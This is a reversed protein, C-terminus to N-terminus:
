VNVHELGDAAFAAYLLSWGISEFYTVLDDASPMETRAALESWTPADDWAVPRRKPPLRENYVHRMLRMFARASLIPMRGRMRRVLRWDSLADYAAFLHNHSVGPLRRVYDNGCAACFAVFSWVDLTDPGIVRQLREIDYIETRRLAGETSSTCYDGAPTVHVSGLSVHIHVTSGAAELQGVLGLPVFDTDTSYMLIDGAEYVARLRAADVTRLPAAADPEDYYHELDVSRQRHTRRAVFSAVRQPREDRRARRAYHLALIDAEGITPKPATDEYVITDAGDLTTEIVHVGASSDIILRRGPPPTYSALLEAVINEVAHRAAGADLRVREWPPLAAHSDRAVIPSEGDWRWEPVARRELSAELAERRGTQTASKRTPVYLKYDFALVRTHANPNAAFAQNAAWAFSGYTDAGSM